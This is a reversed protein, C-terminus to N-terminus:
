KELISCTPCLGEIILLSSHQEYDQPLQINPTQVNSLCLTVGCVECKFHIHNDYYDSIKSHDVSIAYKNAGDRDMIQHILGCDQFKSLTRYLTVRNYSDSLSQEIDSHTLAHKNEIFLNLISIRCKTIRLGRKKLIDISSNKM